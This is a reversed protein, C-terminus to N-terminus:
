ERWCKFNERKWNELAIWPYDGCFNHLCRHRQSQMRLQQDPNTWAPQAFPESLLCDILEIYDFKTKTPSLLEASQDHHAWWWQQFWTQNAPHFSKCWCIASTSFDRGLWWSLLLQLPEVPRHQQMGQFKWWAGPEIQNNKWWWNIQNTVGKLSEKSGSLSSIKRNYRLGGGLAACSEAQEIRHFREATYFIKDIHRLLVELRFHMDSLGCNEIRKKAEKQKGGIWAIVSTCCALLNFRLPNFVRERSESHNWYESM